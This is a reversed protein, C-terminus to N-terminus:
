RFVGTESLEHFEKGSIGLIEKCLFETHEGLCPAPMRPHAPTKSLKVPQGLHSFPGIEEHDMLWFLNDHKLQPDYYLDKADNVMGAPVRAAQMRTMVEEPTFNITWSEILKDLEEENMKRDSLTIFSSEKTWKPQGLAETFSDWERETFVTITCWRDDGRCRYVNHPAADPCANGDRKEIRRNVGYNLIASALFNVGTEFQSLDVCQGRGTKKRYLLAAVIAATAFRPAIMDTYAGWPQVPDRDPWGTLYTFGSLGGLQIGLGPHQACPGSQGQNSNRLMIIDPKIRKLDEYGLEWKEMMGPTFSEAVVDAWSILRKAIEIGKPHDLNLSFSYKNANFFAFYGCTVLIKARDPSENRGPM